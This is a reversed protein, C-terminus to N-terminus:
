LCLTNQFIFFMLYSKQLSYVQAGTWQKFTELLHLDIVSNMARLRARRTHVKQAHENAQMHKSHCHTWRMGLAGTLKSLLVLDCWIKSVFNFCCLVLCFASEAISCWFQLIVCASPKFSSPLFTFDGPESAYQSTFGYSKKQVQQPKSLAQHPSVPLVSLVSHSFQCSEALFLSLFPSSSCSSLPARANVHHIWGECWRTM